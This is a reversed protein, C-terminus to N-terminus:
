DLSSMLEGPIKHYGETPWRARRNSAERRELENKGPGESQHEQLMTRIVKRGCLEWQSEVAENGAPALLHGLHVFRTLTFCVCKPDSFRSIKTLETPLHM